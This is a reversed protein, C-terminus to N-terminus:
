APSTAPYALSPIVVMERLKLALTATERGFDSLYYKYRKGVKKIVGHVRLRKGFSM